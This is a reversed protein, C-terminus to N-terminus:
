PDIKIARKIINWYTVEKKELWNKVPIHTFKIKASVTNLVSKFVIKKTAKIEGERANQRPIPGFIGNNM